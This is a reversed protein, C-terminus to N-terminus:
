VRRRIARGSTSRTIEGPLAGGDGQPAKEVADLGRRHEGPPAWDATMRLGGEQDIDFAALRLGLPRLVGALLERVLDADHRIVEYTSPPEAVRLPGPAAGARKAGRGTLLWEVSVGLAGAIQIARTLEPMAEGELWKRAGKQSVDFQKGLAVQRGSGKPAYGIDDLAENLRAAFTLREDDATVM